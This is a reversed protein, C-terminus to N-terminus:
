IECEWKMNRSKHLARVSHCMFDLRPTPPFPPPPSPLSEWIFLHLIRTTESLPSFWHKQAFSIGVNEPLSIRLREGLDKGKCMSLSQSSRLKDSNFLSLCESGPFYWPFKKELQTGKERPYHPIKGANRLATRSNTCHWVSIGRRSWLLM